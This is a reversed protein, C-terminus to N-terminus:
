LFHEKFKMAIVASSRLFALTQYQNVQLLAKAVDGSFVYGVGSGACHHLKVKVETGETSTPFLVPVTEDVVQCVAM